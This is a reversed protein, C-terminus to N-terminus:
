NSRQYKIGCGYSKTTTPSVEKGDKIAKVTKVVYNSAAESSDSRESENEDDLAGAYRLNGTPDIVFLHPTTKAGYLHGVKGDSDILGIGDVKHKALYEATTKPDNQAPNNSNIMLFVADPYMEKVAPIMRGIRGEEMVARCVPCGPNVWELVVMKGAYDKLSYTKGDVGTLTFDPAKEGIKAAAPPAAERARDRRPRDPRAPKDPAGQPAAPGPAADQAAGLLTLSALTVACLTTLRNNM